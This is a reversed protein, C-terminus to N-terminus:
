TPMHRFDQAHAISVKQYKKAMSVITKPFHWYIFKKKVIALRVVGNKPKTAVQRVLTLTVFFFFNLKADACILRHSLSGCWLLFSIGPFPFSLIDQQIESNMEAHQLHTWLM